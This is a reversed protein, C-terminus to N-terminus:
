QKGKIWLIFIDKSEKGLHLIKPHEEGCHCILESYDKVQEIPWEKKM